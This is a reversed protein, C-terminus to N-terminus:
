LNGRENLKQATIRMNREEITEIGLDKNLRRSREHEECELMKTAQKVEMYIPYLEEFEHSSTSLWFLRKKLAKMLVRSNRPDNFELVISVTSNEAKLTENNKM